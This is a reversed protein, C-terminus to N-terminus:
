CVNARGKTSNVLRWDADSNTDEGNPCRSWSRGDNATDSAKLTRDIEQRNANRLILLEGENDLWGSREVIYYSKGKLITKAPITVTVTDGHTTSITWGGIDVDQDSVNFLEVWELVSRDDGPPNLDFENIVVQVPPVAPSSCAGWLGRKAVQAENQLASVRSSFPQEEPHRVDARALGQSLLIAQFLAQQDSDLYILALLRGANLRGQHKLWVTRSVLLTAAGQAAEATYCEGIEPANILYARIKSPLGEGGNVYAVEFTDGDIAKTIVGVALRSPQPQMAPWLTFSTLLFLFASFQLLRHLNSYANARNIDM